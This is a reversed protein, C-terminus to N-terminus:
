DNNRDRTIFAAYEMFAETTGRKSERTILDFAKEIEKPDREALSNLIRQAMRPMTDSKALPVDLAYALDFLTQRSKLTPATTLKEKVEALMEVVNPAAAVEPTRVDEYSFASAARPKARRMGAGNEASTKAQDIAASFREGLRPDSIVKVIVAEILDDPIELEIQKAIDSALGSIRQDRNNTKTM